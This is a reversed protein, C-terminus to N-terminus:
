YTTTFNESRSCELEWECSWSQAGSEVRCCHRRTWWSGISYGVFGTVGAYITSQPFRTRRLRIHLWCDKFMPRCFWRPTCVVIIIHARFGTLQPVYVSSADVTCCCCGFYYALISEREFEQRPPISVQLQGWEDDFIMRTSPRAYNSYADNDNFIPYEYFM